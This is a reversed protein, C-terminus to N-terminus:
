VHARGIKKGSGRNEQGVDEPEILRAPYTGNGPASCVALELDTLAEVNFIDENPIYVSYPPIKEFVNMRKGINQFLDGGTKVNAIGSLLVLCVENNGTGKNIKGGKKLSYVEFGVYEWNATKPTISLIKGEHDRKQSKLLLHSM